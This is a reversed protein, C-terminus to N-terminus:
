DDDLAAREAFDRMSAEVWAEDEEDRAAALAAYGEDLQHERVAEIGLEVLSQLIESESTARGRLEHLCKREPTDPDFFLLVKAALSDPLNITKRQM